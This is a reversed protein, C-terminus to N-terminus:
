LRAKAAQRAVAVAAQGFALGGDNSPVQRPLLLTFDGQLRAVTKELLTKNQFVGGSLAAKTLHTRERLRGLVAAISDAMTEHFDMALRATERRSAGHHEALVRLAPLMDIEISDNKERLEYPLVQGPAAAEQACRELEIAAQGEYHNVSRIGLLAAATDFLRGASSAMPSNLGGQVAQLLLKWGRPLAACFVPQREELADGYLLYMVWLAQRWPERAAVGGGPLPLYSFHALRQFGQLDAQLFEGGWICGDTGYGTGDFAVGLVPGTEGHEALVAAIHAHHHQVQILPLKERAARQRAYQTSLYDPHLDCVLLQPQLSFINEYHAIIGEYSALTAQNSLDGIHESLFALPGRTACFTNKLEAGCALVMPGPQPLRLPSPAYGRSRRLFFPSGAAIRLVSDDVRHAIARDHVLFADAIGTLRQLADEDEYAIPEDSRNASTMIWVDEPQLLLCHVPAYPLMVGLSPNGPATSPALVTHAAPKKQLLVIPAQPGQLLRAEDGSVRCLRQVAALSGAMVAFPKDERHKRARLAAVARENRADCALHYGGIGKVALIRGAAILERAQSLAEAARAQAVPAGEHLPHSGAPGAGAPRLLTYVPGCAACANPQAHFRRDAPDDYEAQCDGCMPFDRMTTKPRDYPIDEVISYRPGCNTCNTFAYGYRRNAPDLLERRCDECIAIDPSILAAREQGAPSPLIRFEGRAGIPASKEPSTSKERSVAKEMSVAKESSAPSEPLVLKEPLTRKEPLVAKRSSAAEKWSISEGQIQLPIDQTEVADIVAMSPAEARIGALFAAVDVAVGQAELQVGQTDNRVWGAIHYKGALRYIFPRFGVGQVIGRVRVRVRVRRIGKEADM